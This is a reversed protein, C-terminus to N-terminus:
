NLNCQRGLVACGWVNYRMKKGLPVHSEFIFEQTMTKHGGWANMTLPVSLNSTLGCHTCKLLNIQGNCTFYNYCALAHPCFGPNIGFFHRLRNLFAPHYIHNSHTPPSTSYSPSQAQTIIRYGLEPQEVDRAESAAKEAVYPPLPPNPTPMWRSTQLETYSYKHPASEGFVEKLLKFGTPATYRIRQTINRAIARQSEPNRRHSVFGNVMTPYRYRYVLDDKLYDESAGKPPYRPPL